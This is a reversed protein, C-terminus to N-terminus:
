LLRRVVRAIYLIFATISGAVIDDAMIGVGGTAKKDIMGVPFPKLIDLIRFIILGYLVKIAKDPRSILSILMGVVEDIVVRSPDRGWINEMQSSSVVGVGTLLAVVILYWFLSLGRIFFFLPLTAVSAVTGPAKPAYGTGFFTAILRALKVSM